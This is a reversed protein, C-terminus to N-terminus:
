EIVGMVDDTVMLRVNRGADIENMWSLVNGAVFTGLCEGDATYFDVLQDTEGDWDRVQYETATYRGTM